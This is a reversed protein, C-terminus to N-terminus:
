KNLLSQIGEKEEKEELDELEFPCFQHEFEFARPVPKQYNQNVRLTPQHNKQTHQDKREIKREKWWKIPDNFLAQFMPLSEQQFSHMVDFTQEWEKM